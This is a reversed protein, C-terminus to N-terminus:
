PVCSIEPPRYRVYFLQNVALIFVSWILGLVWAHFTSLPITPDAIRNVVASQVEPYPSQDGLLMATAGINPDHYGDFAIGMASNTAKSDIWSFFFFPFPVSM